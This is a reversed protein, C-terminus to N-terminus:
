TQLRFPIIENIEAECRRHVLNCVVFEAPFPQFSFKAMNHSFPFQRVDTIKHILILRYVNLQSNSGINVM